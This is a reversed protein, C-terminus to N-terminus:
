CRATVVEEGGTGRFTTLQETDDANEDTTLAGFDDALKVSPVM